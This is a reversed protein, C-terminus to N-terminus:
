MAYASLPLQSKRWQPMRQRDDAPPRRAAVPEAVDLPAVGVLCAPVDDRVLRSDDPHSPPSAHNMIESPEYEVLTVEARRRRGHNEDRPLATPHDRRPIRHALERRSERYDRAPAFGEGSRREQKDLSVPLQDLNALM